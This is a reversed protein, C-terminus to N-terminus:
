WEVRGLPHPVRHLSPLDDPPTRSVPPLRHGDRRPRRSRRSWAAMTTLTLKLWFLFCVCMYMYVSPEALQVNLKLITCPYKYRPLRPRWIAVVSVHVAANFEVSFVHSLLIAPSLLEHHVMVTARLKNIRPKTNKRQKKEQTRKRSLRCARRHKSISPPPSSLSYVNTATHRATKPSAMPPATSPLNLSTDHTM